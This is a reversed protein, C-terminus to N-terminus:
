RDNFRSQDPPTWLNRNGSSFGSSGFSGPRIGESPGISFQLGGQQTTTKGKAADELPAAPDVVKAGGGPDTMTNMTFAQAAPAVVLAAAVLTLRLRMLRLHDRM